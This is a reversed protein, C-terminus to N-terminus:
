KWKQAVEAEVSFVNQSNSDFRQQLQYAQIELPIKYYDFENNAWGTVYERAFRDPTLFRFQAVHVCEHFVLSTRRKADIKSPNILVTDNFTIGAMNRFDLPMPIGQKELEKYFPPNEIRPVECIRVSNLTDSQSFPGIVSRIDSELPSGKAWYADRQTVMWNRGEKELYSVLQEPNQLDMGSDSDSKGKKSRTMEAKDEMIGGDPMKYKETTIFKDESIKETIRISSGQGQVSWVWNIIEKNGERKGTGKAICRLSDFLYGVTEGSNPDITYVEMSEFTSSRIKDIESDSLHMTGKLHRLYEDSMQIIEAQGKRVLFQGNLDLEIKLRCKGKVWDKHQGFDSKATGQWDGVLWKSWEDDLAKPPELSPMSGKDQEKKQNSMCSTMSLMMVSLVIFLRKM